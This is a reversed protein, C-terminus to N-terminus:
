MKYNLMAKLRLQGDKDDIFPFEELKVLIDIKRGSDIDVLNTFNTYDINEINIRRRHKFSIRKLLRFSTAGEAVIYNVSFNKYTYWGTVADISDSNIRNDSRYFSMKGIYLQDLKDNSNESFYLNYKKNQFLLNMDRLPKRCNLFDLIENPITFGNESIRCCIHKTYYRFLNDKGEKHKKGFIKKVDVYSDNEIEKWYEDIYDMFSTYAKDFPVSRENNCRQCICKEFKLNDSKSSQVIRPESLRNPDINFIGLKEEHYPGKGYIRNIDTRKVKHERSNSLEGCWWCIGETKVREFM